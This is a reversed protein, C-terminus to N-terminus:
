EIRDPVVVAAVGVTGTDARRERREDLCAVIPREVRLAHEDNGVHEDADRFQQAREGFRAVADHHVRRDIRREVTDDALHFTLDFVNRQQAGLVAGPAEVQGTELAREGAAGRRIQETRRV